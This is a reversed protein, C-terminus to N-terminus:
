HEHTAAPDHRPAHGHAIGHRHLRDHLRNHAAALTARLQRFRDAEPRPALTDVYALSGEIQELVTVADPRSFLPSGEVLVQVASSHAAVDGPRGRYSGRVRLAIWTSATIPVSASGSAAPTGDVVAEAVVLGGVVVEVREIPVRVSEVRWSVDVTGGPAPLEVRSGPPRGNVTLELLPGVTAFTNGARVADMWAQYTFDREGLHAYTRVGGLLWAAGMKDSGGVLPLQYGLNQYRYWDVLGYPSLQNDHPNFTMLEVANVLDLVIDAARECQPNPAHPM